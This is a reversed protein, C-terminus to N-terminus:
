EEKPQKARGGKKGATAALERDLSFTRTEPSVSRGGKMGARSALAKNQSFSRKDKPVNAGGKKALELRREPSLAAFGRPKKPKKDDETM